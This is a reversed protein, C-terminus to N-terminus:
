PQIVPAFPNTANNWESSTLSPPASSFLGPPTSPTPVTFGSSPPTLGTSALTQNGQGALGGISNLPSSIVTTVTSNGSGKGTVIWYVTLGAFAILVIGVAKM